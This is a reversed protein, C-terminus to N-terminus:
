AQLVRTFICRGLSNVHCEHLRAKWNSLRSRLVKGAGTGERNLQLCGSRSAIFIRGRPPGAVTEKRMVMMVLLALLNLGLLLFLLLTPVLMQMVCRLCAGAMLAEEMVVVVLMMMMM